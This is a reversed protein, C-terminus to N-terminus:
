SSFKVEQDEKKGRPRQQETESGESHNGCHLDVARVVFEDDLALVQLRVDERRGGVNELGVRNHQLAEVSGRGIDQGRQHFFPVCQSLFERLPVNVPFGLKGIWRHALQKQLVCASWCEFKEFHPVRLEIGCEFGPVALLGALDKAAGELGEVFFM